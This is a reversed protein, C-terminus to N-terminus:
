AEQSQLLLFTPLGRNLLMLVMGAGLGNATPSTMAAAPEM